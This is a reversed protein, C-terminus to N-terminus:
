PLSFWAAAVRKAATVHTRVHTRRAFHTERGLPWWPDAGGSRLLLRSLM